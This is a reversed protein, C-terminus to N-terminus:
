GKKVALEVMKLRDESCTVLEGERTKFYPNGAPVFIVKELNLKDVAANAVVVHGNHIPDFTGGFLGVLNM